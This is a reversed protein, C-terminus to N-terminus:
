ATTVWVIGVTTAPLLVNTYLLPNSYTVDEKTPVAEAPDPFPYVVEVTDFMVVTIEARATAAGTTTAHATSSIDDKGSKYAV